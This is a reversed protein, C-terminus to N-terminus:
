FAIINFNEWPKSKNIRRLLNEYDENSYFILEKNCDRNYVHYFGDEEYIM